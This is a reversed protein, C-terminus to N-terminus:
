IQPYTCVFLNGIQSSGTFSPPADCVQQGFDNEDADQWKSMAPQSGKQYARFFLAKIHDDDAM